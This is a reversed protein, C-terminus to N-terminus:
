GAWHAVLASISPYGGLIILLASVAFLTFFLRKQKPSWGLFDILVIRLGNMAHYVVAGLLAVEGIKYIPQHYKAILANFAAPDTLAKLGWVHIILYGVLAVGSIRHFMWALMGTRIRYSQFRKTPEVTPEQVATASTREATDVAM